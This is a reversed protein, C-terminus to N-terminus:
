VSLRDGRQVSWGRRASEDPPSRRPVLGSAVDWEPPRWLPTGLRSRARSTSAVLGARWPVGCASTSSRSRSAAIIIPPVAAHRTRSMSRACPPSSRRWGRPPKTSTMQCRRPIAPEGILWACISWALPLRLDPAGLAIPRPSPWPSTGPWFRSGVSSESQSICQAWEVKPLRMVMDDGLRFIENDTGSSPVHTLLPLHAWAPFQRALLGASWITWRHATISDSRWSDDEAVSSGAAAQGARLAAVPAPLTPDVLRKPVERLVFRTVTPLDLEGPGRRPGFWAIEDLEGCDPQRELSILRAADAMFFRADYRKPLMPPTVARAVFDLASLDPLAGLALFERWPGAAIRPPAPTALLLGVEEFTERVAAMALARARALPATKQLRAAVDPRLDTAHPANFDSRDIRGGPFVWKDPMFSHGGHRRGMM